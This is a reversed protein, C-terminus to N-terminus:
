APLGQSVRALLLKNYELFLQRFDPDSPVADELITVGEPLAGRM